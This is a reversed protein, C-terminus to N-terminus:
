GAVLREEVRALLESAGSGTRASTLVVRPRQEKGGAAPLLSELERAWTSAGPRDSKNVVGLEATELYGANLMQHWDGSDPSLVLVRADVSELVDTESQGVGVTEFFIWDFGAAELVRACADSGATPRGPGSRHALSRIFVGADRALDALRVRDGLFAGGTRPSVPDALLLAATQGRRRVERVVIGLLSSKGVGPPGTFGVRRRPPARAALTEVLALAQPDGHVIRTLLRGIARPDGSRIRSLLDQSDPLAM